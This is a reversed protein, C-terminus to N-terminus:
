RVCRDDHLRCIEFKVCQESRECDEDSTSSCEGEGTPTCRGFVTCDVTGYCHGQVAPDGPTHIQHDGGPQEGSPVAVARAQQGGEPQLPAQRSCAAIALVVLLVVLGFALGPRVYRM